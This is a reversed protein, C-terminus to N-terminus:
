RNKLFREFCEMQREKESELYDKTFSDIFDPRDAYEKKFSDYLRPLEKIIKAFNLPETHEETPAFVPLAPIPVDPPFNHAIMCEQQVKEIREREERSFPLKGLSKNGITKWICALLYDIVHQFFSGGKFKLVYDIVISKYAAPSNKLKVLNQIAEESLALYNCVQNIEGNRSKVQSLGLLWDASVECKEAIVKLGLADPIRQGAAYFGVTARSMGLKDAFEQITMDGMLDLFANRFEPFRPPSSKRARNM